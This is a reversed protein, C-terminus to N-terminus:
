EAALPGVHQSQESGLRANADGLLIIPTAFRSDSEEFRDWWANIEDPDRAAHPAHFTVFTMPPGRVSTNVALITPEAILLTTTSAVAKASGTHGESHRVWISCGAQGAPTAANNFMGFHKSNRQSSDRLRTEQLAVIHMGADAYTKELM